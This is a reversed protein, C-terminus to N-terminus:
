RSCVVIFRWPKGSMAAVIAKIEEETLFKTFSSKYNGDTEIALYALGKAGYDKAFAVLADIKKRPMEAQGEVNIGRVSGGNELATTFVSFGCNKM